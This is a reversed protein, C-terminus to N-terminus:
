AGRQRAWGAGVLLGLALLAATAPEPVDVWIRFAFDQKSGDARTLANWPGFHPGGNPGVGFSNVATNAEGGVTPGAGAADAWTWGALCAPGTGSTSFTTCLFNAISFWYTTGAQVLLDRPQWAASYFYVGDGDADAGGSTVFHQSIGGNPPTAAPVGGADNHFTAEWQDLSGAGSLPATGWWDIQVVAGSVVPIFDDALVPGRTGHRSVHTTNTGNGAGGETWEYAIVPVAVAARTALLAAVGAALM